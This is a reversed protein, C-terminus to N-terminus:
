KREQENLSKILLDPTIEIEKSQIEVNNLYTISEYENYPRRLFDYWKQQFKRIISYDFDTGYELTYHQLFQDGIRSAILLLQNKKSQKTIEEAKPDAYEIGQWLVQLNDKFDDYVLIAMHNIYPLTILEKWKRDLRIRNLIEDWKEIKNYNNNIWVLIEEFLDIFQSSM